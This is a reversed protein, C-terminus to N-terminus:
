ATEAAPEDIGLSGDVLQAALGVIGLLVITRV